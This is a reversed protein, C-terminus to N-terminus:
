EWLISHMNVTPTKTQKTKLAAGLACPPEWALPQILAVAAPRCAAMAVGSRLQM